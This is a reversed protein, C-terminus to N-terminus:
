LAVTKSITNVLYDRPDWLRQRATFLPLPRYLLTARVTASACGVPLEFGHQTTATEKPRIRDDVAMDIARYHPAQRAGSPDVLVRAFATGASGALALSTAGDTFTTAADGLFVLDGSSASLPADLTIQTGNVSAVHAEGIPALNEMGKQAATLTSGEFLGVGDYDWYTGTPRVVRVVMGASALPAGAAWDLSSAGVTIDTGVFGSARAGGFDPITMGSIPRLPSGCAEAEVSLIMSRMPEGTPIAHGAAGNTVAVQVTLESATPSANVELTAAADLLRPSGPTEALPGRFTHARLQDPTRVFGFVIGADSPKTVDVSNALSDIPPMHCFQCNVDTQGYVSTKWEAWTTHTPLGTPWRAPDLPIGSLLSPQEQQHCGGCFDGSTYKPQYSGGMFTIPVDPYPGYLAQRTPSGLDGIKERPRQMVLRGAGGPPKTLDIDAVHHCADCHNGNEYGVGTADLLNRGGAPGDMGLGHCDACGGFATPANAQSIAPDDCTHTPGCDNLDPLVGGGVYCRSMAVGPSGPTTGIRWSGGLAACEAATSVASAVGAYLDQVLPDRTAKAHASKLFQAVYTTHCHGCYATSSDLWADGVGPEGYQYGLANDPPAIAYLVLEIPEAPLEFFEFGASRSGVKAAVVTPTGPLDTTMTVTFTGDPGTLMQTAGGGQLILADAVPVRNQDVVVGTVEFSTPLGGGLGDGGGGTAGTSSGGLGAGGTAGAAGAGGSAGSAGAGGSGGTGTDDGCASVALVASAISSLVLGISGRSVRSFSLADHARLM